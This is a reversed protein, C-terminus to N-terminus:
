VNEISYNWGTRCSNDEFVQGIKEGDKFINAAIKQKFLSIVKKELENFKGFTYVASGGRKTRFSVSYMIM